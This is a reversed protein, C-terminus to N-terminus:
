KIGEVRSNSNIRPANQQKQQEERQMRDMESATAGLVEVMTECGSSLFSLAGVLFARFIIKM